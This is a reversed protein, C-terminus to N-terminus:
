YSLAGLFKSTSSDVFAVVPQRVSTTGEGNHPGFVPVEASPFVIMWAETDKVIPEIHAPL